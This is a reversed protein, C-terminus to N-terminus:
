WIYNLGVSMSDLSRWVGFYSYDQGTLINVAVSAVLNANTRYSLQPRIWNGREGEILHQEIRLSPQFGLKESNANWEGWVLGHDYNPSIIPGSSVDKRFSHLVGFKFRDLSIKASVNMRQSRLEYASQLSLSSFFSPEWALAVFNERVFHPTAEVIIDVDSKPRIKPDLDLSPSPAPASWASISIKGLVNTHGVSVFVQNQFLIQTLSSINLRYRLPYLNGDLDVYAPPLNAFRSGTAPASDSISLGPGFSPIFFPSYAFAYDIKTDLNASQLGMGIWGSLYPELARTKNQVWNAGIAEQPSSDLFNWRGFWALGTEPLPFKLTFPDLDVNWDGGPGAEVFLKLRGEHVNGFHINLDLKPSPSNQDAYQSIQLQTHSVPIAAHASTGLIFILLSAIV